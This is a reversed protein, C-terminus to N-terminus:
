PAIIGCFELSTAARRIAAEHIKAVTLAKKIGQRNFKVRVNSLGRSVIRGHHIHKLKRAHSNAVSM